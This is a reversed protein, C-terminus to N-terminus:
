NLEVDLVRALFERIETGARGNPYYLADVHGANRAEYWESDPFFSAVKRGEWPTTIDDLEGSVVLVPAETPEDTEPDVPPEYVDTPAPFTLCAFYGTGPSYAIERPTFPEFADKPYARIAEEFQVRREAESAHKDWIMPYDNCSVMWQGAYQYRYDNGVGVRGLATLKKWATPDGEVLESLARDFRLYSQPPDGSANILATVADIVPLGKDRLTDLGKELRGIADGECEPDRDCAIGLSRIGTRPLSPYWPDEGYAPYASDLVLAELRDGHRFAYSQALFTGYSDGYLTIEEYGLAQRVSEIDDAAASTRYSIFREGLRRACEAVTVFEPGEGTQLVPCDYHESLGQGRQDVLVLERNELLPHMLRQFLAGTGSSSYGPGGEVMFIAGESPASRDRRPYVAFGIETTGYSADAREFPVEVTGCRYGPKKPLPDCPGLDSFSISGFGPGPAAASAPEAADGDDDGGGCAAALLAGAALAAALRTWRGVGHAAM